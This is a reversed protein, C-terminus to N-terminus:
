AELLKFFPLGKKGLRSIFSSLAAMCGTLKQVDKVYALPKMNTMAARKEPNAEIDHHSVINCLLIGSSVGFFVQHSKAEM